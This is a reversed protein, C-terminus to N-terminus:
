GMRIRRGKSIEVTARERFDKIWVDLEAQDNILSQEKGQMVDKFSVYTPVAPTPLPAKGDPTPAKPPNALKMVRDLQQPNVRDKYSQAHQKVAAIFTEDKIKLRIEASMGFVEKKQEDNLKAFEPVEKIGSELSDLSQSASEKAANLLVVIRGQASESAAKADRLVMGLYPKKSDILARIPALEEDALEAINAKQEHFFKGVGDYTTRQPGNIFAKIPNILEEKESLLIDRYEHLNNILYSIDRDATEGILKVVEKMESFFTYYDGRESILKELEKHEAKLGEVLATTISRPDHGPSVKGFFDQHFAKMANVKALDYTAQLQIIVNSIKASSSLDDAAQRGDLLAQNTRLEFKGMRMLRAIQTLTAYKSWGFPTRSFHDVIDLASIRVGDKIRRDSYSFVENEAPTLPMAGGTLLDDRDLLVKRLSVEDHQGPVLHLKQYTHTILEQAANFIRTKADASGLNLKNGGVYLECKGLLDKVLEKILNALEGNKKQRNKITDAKNPDGTSSNTNTYRKTRLYNRVLEILRAAEVANIMLDPAAGNQIIILPLTAALHHDSTV